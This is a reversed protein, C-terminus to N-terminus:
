CNPGPAPEGTDSSLHWIDGANNTDKAVLCYSQGNNGPTATIVIDASRNYGQLALPGGPDGTPDAAYQSNATFYSEEAVAANRLDSKVTAQWGKERQKLYMPIAIAALIGIIIIVVLLEILTFGGEGGGVEVRNRIKTLM